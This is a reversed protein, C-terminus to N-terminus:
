CYSEQSSGIKCRILSENTCICLPPTVVDAVNEYACKDSGIPFIGGACYSLRVADYTTEATAGKSLSASEVSVDSLDAAPPVTPVVTDNDEKDGDGGNSYEQSFTENGDTTPPSTQIVEDEDAANDTTAATTAAAASQSTDIRVPIMVADMVHIIGNCARISARISPLLIKPLTNLKNNGNGKQHKDVATGEDNAECKTRSMDGSTMLITESCELDWPFLIEGEHAHFKMMRMLKKSSLGDIVAKSDDFASDIPAFFTWEGELLATGLEPTTEYM